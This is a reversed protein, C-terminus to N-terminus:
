SPIVALPITAEGYVEIAMQMFEGLSALASAGVDMHLEVSVTDPHVAVVTM